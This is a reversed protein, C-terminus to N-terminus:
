LAVLETWSDPHEDGPADDFQQDSSDAGPKAYVSAMKLFAEFIAKSRKFKGKTCSTQRQTSRWSQESCAYRLLSLKLGSLLTIAAHAAPQKSAKISLM